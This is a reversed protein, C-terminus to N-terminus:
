LAIFGKEAMCERVFQEKGNKLRKVRANSKNISDPVLVVAVNHGDVMEQKCGEIAAVAEPTRTYAAGEYGTLGQAKYGACGTAAIAIIVAAIFKIAKM